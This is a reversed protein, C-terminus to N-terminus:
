KGAKVPAPVDVAMPKFRPGTAFDVNKGRWLAVVREVALLEEDTLEFRVMPGLGAFKADPEGLPEGKLVRACRGDHPCLYKRGILAVDSATLRCVTCTQWGTGYMLHEVSM